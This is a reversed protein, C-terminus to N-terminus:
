LGEPDEASGYMMLEPSLKQLTTAAIWAPEDHSLSSLQMATKSGLQKCVLDFTACEDESFRRLDPRKLATISTMSYGPFEEPETHLAAAKRLQKVAREGRSPVPGHQYKIFESGTISEGHDRLHRADAFYVLKYLKTLGLDSM